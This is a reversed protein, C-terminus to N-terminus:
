KVVVKAISKGSRVIYVGPQQSANSAVKTGSLTFVEFDDCGDVYICRNVVQVNLINGAVQVGEINVAHTSTHKKSLTVWGVNDATTSNNKIDKKKSDVFKRVRISEIYSIDDVKENVVRTNRLVAGGTYNFTQMSAFILPKELLLTDYIETGTAADYINTAFYLPRASIGYVTETSHGASLTLGTEEDICASGPTFAAYNLPQAATVSKAAGEEHFTIAKFSENTVDWVRIFYPLGKDTPVLEALVVPTVGEAFPKNFKVEITDGAVETAAVEIEMNEFKHNGYPLAMYSVEEANTFKPEETQYQLPFLKYGFDKNTISTMLTTPVADTSNYSYLGTFVAPAVEYPTNFEIVTEDLDVIALNGYKIFDNGEASAVFVSAEGTTRQRKDSDYNRIRYTITGTIGKLTDGVSYTASEVDYITKVPVFKTGENEVLREIVISDTLEGNPHNWKLTAIRKTSNFTATLSAPAKYVVKPVYQMDARYGLGSNMEAYFEGLLSLGTGYKYIKSCDAESNWYAYREVCAM